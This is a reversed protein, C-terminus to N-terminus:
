SSKESETDVHVYIVEQCTFHTEVDNVGVASTYYIIIVIIMKCLASQTQKIVLFFQFVNKM